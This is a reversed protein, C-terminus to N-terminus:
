FEEGCMRCFSEKTHPNFYIQDGKNIKTRCSRSSCRSPFKATTKITGVEIIPFQNSKITHTM